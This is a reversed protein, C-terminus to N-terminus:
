PEQFDPNWRVRDESEETDHILVGLDILEHLVRTLMNGMTNNSWFVGKNRYWSDMGDPMLGLCVALEFMAVDFDGWDQLREKLTM